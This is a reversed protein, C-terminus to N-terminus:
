RIRFWSSTRCTLWFSSCLIVRSPFWCNTAPIAYCAFVFSYGESTSTTLILREPDFELVRHVTQYYAAVADRAASLGKPQPDYDM